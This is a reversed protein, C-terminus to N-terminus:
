APCNNAAVRYLSHDKGRLWTPPQGRGFWVAGTEPDRYHFQPPNIEHQKIEYAKILTQVTKIASVRAKARRAKMEEFQSILAESDQHLTLLLSAEDATGTGIATPTEPM